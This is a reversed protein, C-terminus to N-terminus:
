QGSGGQGLQRSIEATCVDSAMDRWAARQEPPVAKNVGDAIGRKAAEAPLGEVVDSVLQKYQAGIAGSLEDSLQDAGGRGTAALDEAARVAGDCSRSVQAQVEQGVRASARDAAQDAAQDIMGCGTLVVTLGGAAAAVRVKRV